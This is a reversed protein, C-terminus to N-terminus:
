PKIFKLFFNEPLNQISIMNIFPILSELSSRKFILFLSSQILGSLISMFTGILGGVSSQTSIGSLFIIEKNFAIKPSYLLM